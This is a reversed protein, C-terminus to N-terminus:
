LLPILQDIGYEIAKETAITKLTKLARLARKIIAPQPMKSDLEQKIEFIYQAMDQEDNDMKKELSEMQKLLGKIKECTENPIGTTKNGGIIESQNISVSGNGTNVVGANITQNVITQIKEKNAMVDFNVNIDIEQEFNLFFDLLKSKVISIIATASSPNTFKWAGEINGHPYFQNITNYAFAPVNMRLSKGDDAKSMEEIESIPEMFVIRSLSEKIKKNEIADVPVDMNTFVGRFPISVNAKVGCKVKRYEPILKIDKYGNQESKIWHTFTDDKIYFAITQAKLLIRAIPADNALDEIISETQKKLDIM